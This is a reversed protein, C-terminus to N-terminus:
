PIKWKIAPPAEHASSFLRHVFAGAPEDPRHRRRGDMAPFRLLMHARKQRHRRVM